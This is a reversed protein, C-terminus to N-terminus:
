LMIHIDDITNVRPETIFYVNLFDSLLRLGALAREGSTKQVPSFVNYLFLLPSAAKYLLLCFFVLLVGHNFCFEPLSALSSVWSPGEETNM